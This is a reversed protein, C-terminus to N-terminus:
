VTFSLSSLMVCKDMNSAYVGVGESYELVRVNKHEKDCFIWKDRKERGLIAKKKQIRCIGVWEKSFGSAVEQYYNGVNDLGAQTKNKGGMYM